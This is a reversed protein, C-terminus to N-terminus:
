GNRASNTDASVREVSGLRGEAEDLYELVFRMFARVENLERQAMDRSLPFENFLYDLASTRIRESPKM